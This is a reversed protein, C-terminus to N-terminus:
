TSFREFDLLAEVIMRVALATILWKLARHLAADPLHRGLRTGVWSGLVVALAMGAILSWYPAFVFGATAFVLLKLVHIVIMVTGLTVILQDKPLGRRLLLPSALPGTFGLFLSVYTQVAGLVAFQGRFEVARAPLPVWTMVLIFLGLYLPMQEFDVQAVMGVGAAAGVAAGGVFPWVVTWDIHRAGLLVRSSNSALQVAAHVPVIAAAPILGPMVSILLIGGGHGITATLTSALFSVVILFVTEM